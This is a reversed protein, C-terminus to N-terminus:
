LYVVTTGQGIQCVYTSYNIKKFNENLYIPYVQRNAIKKRIIKKEFFLIDLFKLIESFLIILTSIALTM